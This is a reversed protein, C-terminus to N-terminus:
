DVGVKARLKEVTSEIRQMRGRFDDGLLEEIDELREGIYELSADHHDLRAEVRDFRDNVEAKKALPELDAKSATQEFGRAVMQALENLTTDDKAMYM